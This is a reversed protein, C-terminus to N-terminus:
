ARQIGFFLRTIMQIGLIRSPGWNRGETWRKIGSAQEEFVFCDGSKIYKREDGNLRRTTPILIGLLTAELVLLADYPTEIYGFFTPSTM